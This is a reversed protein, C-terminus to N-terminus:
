FNSNDSQIDRLRDKLQVANVSLSRRHQLLPMGGTVIATWWM